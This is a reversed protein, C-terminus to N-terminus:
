YVQRHDLSAKWPEFSINDPRLCTQSLPTEGTSTSNHSIIQVLGIPPRM